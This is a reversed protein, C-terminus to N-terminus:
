ASGEEPLLNVMGYSIWHIGVGLVPKGPFAKRVMEAYCRLQPLYVGFGGERDDTFDSKHDLIWFGQPTGVLVDLVGSVVSGNEDCGLFPLERRIGVPNFRAQVWRDFSDVSASIGELAKGGFTVGTARDLLDTRNARGGLIEFCRHLLLGRETGVAEIKVDPPLGCKEQLLGVVAIASPEARLDSPAVKEPTLGVPIPRYEIARRGITSLPVVSGEKSTEVEEAVKTGAQTVVCPFAKGNVRMEGNDKHLEMGAAEVLLSWPYTKDKGALHSPWELIVKERARTVAVYLLRRAEEELAPQLHAQFAATTEKAAFGPVIEVRAKQLINGLDEFDEYTVSVNPFRSEIKRHMGCVAVIPWELGKASHWTSITVADEDVVRPEPQADNEEVRASLWSLFTKVGTGYYGGALLIRRNAKRFEL